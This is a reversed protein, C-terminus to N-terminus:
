YPLPTGGHWSANRPAPRDGSPGTRPLPAFLALLAIRVREPDSVSGNWPLNLLEAADVSPIQEPVGPGLVRGFVQKIAKRGIGLQRAVHEVRDLRALIGRQARVEERGRELAWQRGRAHERVKPTPFFRPPPGEGVFLREARPANLVLVVAALAAVLVARGRTLPRIAASSAQTSGSPWIWGALFLVAGVQPIAHYWGLGRLNAYPLYGRFSYVLLFSFAVIAGGAAELPNPRRVFGRSWAWAVVLLLCLVVGQAPKTIADLGLNGLVLAEAVAQCSHLAGQVLRAGLSAGQSSAPQAALIEGGRLCFAALAVSAASVAPVLAAKRCRPRGDAWLYAMGAPGSAYGGSWFGVAVVTGLFALALRWAGGSDRWAQLALLTGIMALGAWLAQGASYWVLAPEMVTSLGLLAMAGFGLAPDHTERAVFWGGALMVLPLVSFSAVGVVRPLNELRGAVQVLIYTWLRFLPVIHANHPAWLSQGLRAANRSESLYTFDDGKLIFTELADRVLWASCAALIASLVAMSVWGLPWDLWARLTARGAPNM